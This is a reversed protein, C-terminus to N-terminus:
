RRVLRTLALFALGAVSIAIIMVIALAAGAPANNMPGFNAQILNGVMMGDPGGLMAPTIYDGVTPIFM